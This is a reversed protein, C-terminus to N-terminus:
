YKWVASGVSGGICAIGVVAYVIRLVPWGPPEYTALFGIGCFAAVALLIVASFIRILM